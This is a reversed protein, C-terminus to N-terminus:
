IWHEIQRPNPPKVGGGEPAEQPDLPVLPPDFGRGGVFRATLGKCHLLIIIFYVLPKGPRSGIGRM